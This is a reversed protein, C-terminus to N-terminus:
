KHILLFGYKGSYGGVGRLFNFNVFDIVHMNVSKTNSIIFHM